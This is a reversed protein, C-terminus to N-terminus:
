LVDRGNKKERAGQCAVCRQVGPLSKRRADPIREGCAPEVCWKVSRREWDTQEAFGARERQERLARDRFWAERESARDIEDPM